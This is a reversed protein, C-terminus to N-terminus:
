VIKIGTLVREQKALVYKRTSNVGFKEKLKTTLNNSNLAKHGTSECWEKYNSYVNASTLFDNEHDGTFIYSEHFWTMVSDQHERHQLKEQMQEKMEPLGAAGLRYWEIAGEIAWLLVGELYKKTTMKRKLTKDEEGLHSKPFKIVRIRGWVAEDDPDANVANNSTLWIKFKPRYDFQDKGKFCCRIKDGGTITKVKGENFREGKNSESAAIFRAPQLPAFAFNQGDVDNKATFLHFPVSKGMEEGMVGMLADTFTGKGSRPPGYIYFLVEESTYGTLTYGVAKKLYEAYEPSTADALWSQWHSYDASPRYEIPSCSLFRQETSHPYLNGTRLDVVGTICNFVDADSDFESVDAFVLSQLQGRIGTIKGHNRVCSKILYQYQQVGNKLALEARKILTETIAREVEMEAGASTWHTGTYSLWGLKDSYIFKGQYLANVCRANGEDDIHENLLRDEIDAFERPASFIPNNKEIGLDDSDIMQRSEYSKRKVEVVDLQKKPKAQIAKEFDFGNVSFWGDYPPDILEKPYQWGYEAAIQFLTGIGVDSRNFSAFKAAIEGPKGPIYREALAIGADGMEAQLAMLIKLWRQYGEGTSGFHTPLAQMASEIISVDVPEFNGTIPISHQIVEVGDFLHSPVAQIPEPFELIKSQRHKRTATEDGKRAHTGYLKTIRAANFVAIDINAKTDSFKESISKLLSSVLNRNSETNALEVKWLLHIGNGSLAMVPQPWGAVVQQAKIKEAIQLAYDLETDTSSIGTPRTPDIDVLLWQRSLVDEDKATPDSKGIGILRNNARALLDPNLPNLTIYIAEAKGYDNLQEVADVFSEEDDFYGAVVGGAWGKWRKNTGSLGLARVEVCAGPQYFMKWTLQLDTAELIDM